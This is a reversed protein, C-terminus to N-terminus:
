DTFYQATWSLSDPLDFNFRNFAKTSTLLHANEPNGKEYIVPLRVGILSDRQNKTLLITAHGVCTYVRDHARYDAYANYWRRKGNGGHEFRTVTGTTLAQNQRIAKRERNRIFGAVLTPIMIIM